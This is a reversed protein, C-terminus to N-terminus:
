SYHQNRLNSHAIHMHAYTYKNYNPPDVQELCQLFNTHLVYVSYVKQNEINNYWNNEM